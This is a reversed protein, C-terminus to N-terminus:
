LGIGRGPGPRPRSQIQDLRQRIREARPELTSPVPEPEPQPPQGGLQDVTAHATLTGAPRGITQALVDAPDALGTPDVVLAINRLRGRTMAVYTGARTSTPEIVAIAHDTTTGQNGYGTVAWGLEVQDAVYDAPLVVTGRDPHHVSLAGDVDIGTVTWVHRNRVEDGTTTRLSPQNRRTAIQDGIHARTGDVLAASLDHRLHPQRAQIALNIARATTANATTIAVTDGHGTLRTHTDAVRLPLLTPHVTRVRRHEAYIRAADPDGRRLMLSAEAQWPEHFRHVQDLRHAPLTDCWHAFMGGRAVAPLQEPDGVCVVRWGRTRALTVLRDLDNTAAMGAEDLIVTTGAPARQTRPDVLLKALTMAPAGTEHSLVDAAKGSPALGIVARGEAHLQRVARGLVTTKGSGAPGVVLVLGDTGAVAATAAVLPDVDTSPTEVDTSSTAWGILAHEQDWVTRTTFRRDTVAESIPRGDSRCPGGPAPEPGLPLCRGVALETLRDVLATLEAADRSVNPPLLPAIHRSVDAPLWAAMEESVRQLAAAVIADADFDVLGPVPPAAAALPTPDFGAAIAQSRWQEHLEPASVGHLKGPRSATVARRELMAITRADPEAGDHEESWRGILEALKAAVQESRESFLDRIPGPVVTLDSQGEGPEVRAWDLGLRATIESRLAADYLWSMTRQQGKLFRADLSLWTGTPDQVKASIIAHTHLQPDMTRSTHQRFLAATIGGTDVQDVGDTGRRTVAGHAELWALTADVASDHAALVEARVWPDPTLAWLASVSKPASFTADFGRASKPGFGRGLRAGTVPHRSELLAGLEGGDVDGHVGLAARGNGWWRGAPENPDLYYDVPGRSSRCPRGADEALGAYYDLLQGVRDPTGAKLTTCRM